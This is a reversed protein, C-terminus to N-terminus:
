WRAAADLAAYDCQSPREPLRRENRVEEDPNVCGAPRRADRRAKAAAKQRAEMRVQEAEWEPSGWKLAKPGKDFRVRLSWYGIVIGCYVAWIPLVVLLVLILPGISIFPLAPYTTFSDFLLQSLPEV